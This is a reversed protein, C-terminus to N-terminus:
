VDEKEAIITIRKVQFEFEYPERSDAFLVRYGSSEAVMRLEAEQFNAFFTPEGTGMPDEIWGEGDGEKVVVLLKGRPKLVRHFERFLAPLHAKPTYLISYYAVLGDLSGTEFEMRLMDMVKFALNPQAMRALNICLGSLDVGITEMGQDALFRTIHGCPGCGADCLRAGPGLLASFRTLLERDYPKQSLEDKFLEFYRSGVIDFYTRTRERIERLDMEM